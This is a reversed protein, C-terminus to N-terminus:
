RTKDPHLELGYKDFRHALVELVREADRHHQFLLVADDGYRVLQAQGRLRPKAQTEFWEDLVEHLYVNAVMPSVVGGQPTGQGLRQWQGAEMVGANLWKGILRMLVGDGVRRRLVTRLHAHPVTDFFRRIDVKVVYGGGMRM